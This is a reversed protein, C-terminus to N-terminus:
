LRIGKKKLYGELIGEKERVVGEGKKQRSLFVFDAESEKLKEELREIEKDKKLIIGEQEAIIEEKRQIKDKLKQIDDKYQSVIAHWKNDIVKKNEEAKSEVREQIEKESKKLETM